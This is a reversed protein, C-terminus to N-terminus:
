QLYISDIQLYHLACYQGLGSRWRSKGGTKALFNVVTIDPCHELKLKRFDPESLVRPVEMLTSGSEVHSMILLLANRM